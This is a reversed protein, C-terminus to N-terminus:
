EEKKIMFNDQWCVDVWIHELKNDTMYMQKISAIELWRWEYNICKPLFLFRKIIRSQGLIEPLKAKWRM